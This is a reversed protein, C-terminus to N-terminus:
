FEIIYVPAQDNSAKYVIMLMKFEIRLHVPLWHLEKLLPTVHSFKSMNFILRACINQVRQLKGIQSHPLGYLLSNCYDLKSIICAHVVTKMSDEDFYKRIRRLNYIMYYASKCVSTIQSEMNLQTDFSVGLNRVNHSPKIVTDGVVIGNSKFKSVQRPTGIVLLETKTDNLMLKNQLM